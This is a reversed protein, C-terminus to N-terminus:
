DVAPRTRGPRLFWRRHHLRVVMGEPGVVVELGPQAFSREPRFIAPREGAWRGVAVGERRLELLLTEGCARCRAEVRREGPWSRQAQDLWGMLDSRRGCGDCPIARLTELSL